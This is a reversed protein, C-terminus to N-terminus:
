PDGFGTEALHGDAERALDRPGDFVGVGTFAPSPQGDVARTLAERIYAAKTVGTKAAARTLALDLEPELYISSKKRM